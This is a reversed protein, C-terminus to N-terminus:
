IKQKLKIQILAWGDFEDLNPTLPNLELKYGNLNAMEQVQSNASNIFADNGLVFLAGGKKILNWNLQKPLTIKGDLTGDSADSVRYSRTNLLFYAHRAKSTLLLPNNVHLSINNEYMYLFLKSEPVRSFGNYFQKFSLVYVLFVFVLGVYRIRKLSFIILYFFPFTYWIYRANQFHMTFWLGTLCIISLYVKIFHKDMIGRTCYYMASLPFITFILTFIPNTLGWVGLILNPLIKWLQLKLNYVNIALFMNLLHDLVSTKLHWVEFLTYIALTAIILFISGAILYVSARFKKVIILSIVASGILFLANLRFLILVIVLFYIISLKILINKQFSFSEFTDEFRVFEIILYVLWLTLSNFVGDNIALLNIRYIHWAGLYVSLLSILPLGKDLGLIRSIKYIPYVGSLYLLYNLFVIALIHDKAGVGFLSLIVHIFVIGNQSTKIAGSPITVIDKMEGSHLLSEAIGMYYYADSGILYVKNIIFFYLSYISIICGISLILIKLRDISIKSNSIM